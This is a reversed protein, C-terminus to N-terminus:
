SKGPVKHHTTSAHRPHHAAHHMMSKPAASPNMCNDTLTKSCLPVPASSGGEPTAAHAMTAGGLSVAAALILFRKM